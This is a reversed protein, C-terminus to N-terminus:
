AAKARRRRPAPEAVPLAVPEPPSEKKRRAPKPVAPEPAIEAVVPATEIMSHEPLTKRPRRPKPAPVAEPISEVVLPTAAVPSPVATTKRPRKPKPVSEVSVPEPAMVSETPKTRTRKSVPQIPEAIIAVPPDIKRPRKAPAEVIAQAPPEAAVARPKRAPKAPPPTPDAILTVPIEIPEPPAIDESLPESADPAAVANRASRPKRLDFELRYKGPKGNPLSFEGTGRIHVFDGTGSKPVITWSGQPVGKRYDGSVSVVFTGEREGLTGSIRQFGHFCGDGDRPLVATFEAMSEGDLQGTLQCSQSIRAIRAAGSIGGLIDEVQGDITFQGSARELM